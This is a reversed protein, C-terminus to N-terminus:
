EESESLWVEILERAVVRKPPILLTLSPDDQLAKEAVEKRMVAGKVGCAKRVEDRTWWRAEVLEEDDLKFPQESNGVARFAIMSSQPFPWPQSKVFSVEDVTIGSEELVERKVADEFTEGCEVFGALTTFM